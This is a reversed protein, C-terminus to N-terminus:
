LPKKAFLEMLAIRGAEFNILTNAMKEATSEQMVIHLGLPPKRHNRPKEHMRRFFNLAFETRDFQEEIIFGADQLADNYEHPFALQSVSSTSAWPLPFVLESQHRWMVDYIGLRAGPRLVRYIEAFVRSKDRINMGVHMMYARDFAANPFPMTAVDGVHLKVKHDLGVWTSLQNGVDAYEPTLDIGSIRTDYHSAAFRASGGLGCGLDLVHEAHRLGLKRLFAETAQRGGIHFEDLPALDDLTLDEPVKGLNSVAQEIAALLQGHAYHQAFVADNDM